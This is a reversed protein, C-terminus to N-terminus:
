ADIKISATLADVAGTTWAVGTAPDLAQFGGLVQYTLNLGANSAVETDVAASQTHVSVTRSGSDSRKAIALTNVGVISVPTVGQSSLSPFAFVDEDGATSSYLYSTDGDQTADAVLGASVIGTLDLGLYPGTASASFGGATGPDPFTGTYTLVQTMRTLGGNIGNLVASLTSANSWCAAWYTAGKVVAITAGLTFTQAGAAPNTKATGQALLAGPEGASDAYLAANLNGTIAAALNMAIQSAVGTYPATIKIYIITNAGQGTNTASTANTQGWTTAAPSKLFESQVTVSPADTIARLDGLWDNPVAGSGSWVFVDDWNTTSAASTTGIRVRNAYANTSGSRTNIGTLSLVPAASGNKRVEVSGTTNNIVVKIQWSEWAGTTSVAAVQSGILVGASSYVGINGNEFFRVQVQNAAVDFFTVFSYNTASGASTPLRRRVNAYITAQNGFDPSELFVASALAVAGGVGFATNAATLLTPTGVSTIPWRQGIDTVVALTDFGDGFLYAM